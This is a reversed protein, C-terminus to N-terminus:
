GVEQSEIFLRLRKRSELSMEMLEVGYHLLVEDTIVHVKCTGAVMGSQDPLFFRFSGQDGVRLRLPSEVLMGRESLNIVNVVSAPCGSQECLNELWALIETPVRPADRLGVELLAAITEVLQGDDVPCLLSGDLHGIQAHGADVGLQEVLMLLRTHSLAASTKIERCFSAPSMGRLESSFVIIDPRKELAKQLLVAAIPEAGIIRISERQLLGGTSTSGLLTRPSVLIKRM